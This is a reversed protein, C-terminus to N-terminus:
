RLSRVKAVAVKHRVLMSRAYTRDGLSNSVLARDVEHHLEDSTKLLEEVADCRQCLHTPQLPVTELAEYLQHCKTCTAIM